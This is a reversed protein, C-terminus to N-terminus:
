EGGMDPNLIEDIIMIVFWLAFIGIYFLFIDDWTM